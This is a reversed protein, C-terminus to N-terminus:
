KSHRHGHDYLSYDTDVALVYFVKTKTNIKGIFRADSTKLLAYRPACQSERGSSQFEVNLKMKDVHVKEESLTEIGNQPDLLLEEYDQQSVRYMKKLLMRGMKANINKENISYKDSIFSLNFSLRKLTYGTINIKVDPLSM